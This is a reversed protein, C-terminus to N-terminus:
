LGELQTQWDKIIDFSKQWFAKAEIDVGVGKLVELPNRSGGSALIKEVEPIFSEGQAKYKAFLSLSLLDGFNYAYCYFPAHVIHPVYAWEYRFLPDLDVADGFQEQLVSFYLSCLDDPSMGKQLGEHAQLEFKVFYAQRMITAYADALKEALLSKKAGEDGAEAFLREFMVMEAFTSATESLPLGADQLTFPLQRAYLAHIGHGLEHAVVAVDRPTDTYNLMVYPVIDPTIGACFAGGHKAPRPHTDVHQADFIERAKAEFGSSFKGLTELVLAKAKSFPIDKPVPGPLPAYLDFRSLTTLGLEKAKWRFYHQFVERNETSVELLSQIAKDPVDNMVNRMAIPSQYGRLKAMLTWDKVAAQYIMFFKDVHERYKELLVRYATERQSPDQSHTYALLASLTQVTKAKRATLPKFQFPFETEIVGRLGKLVNLGVTDKKTILSEEEESLTHKALERARHLYYTYPPLAGFLRAANKEDLVPKEQVAKGKVWHWARRAADDWRINLNDAKSQLVKAQASKQDVAHMLHPLSLLRSMKAAVEEHLQLFGRLDDPAMSPDMRGFFEEYRPLAKEVDGVLSDFEGVPLLNDLDWTLREADERKNM